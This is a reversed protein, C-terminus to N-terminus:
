NVTLNKKMSHTRNGYFPHTSLLCGSNRFSLGLPGLINYIGLQIWLLHQPQHQLELSPLFETFSFSSKRSPPREPFVSTTSQTYLLCGAKLTSIIAVTYSGMHCLMKNVKCTYILRSYLKAAYCGGCVQLWFHHKNTTNVLWSNVQGRSVCLGKKPKTPSKWQWSQQLALLTTDKTNWETRLM